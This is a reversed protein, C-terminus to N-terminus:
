DERVAAAKDTKKPTLRILLAPFLTLDATLCLAMIASTLLGLNRTITFESLGLVAFGIGIVLTTSVIAPLVLLLSNKLATAPSDGRRSLDSFRIAIHITDDVAVGLALCGIMVTGADLPLDLLGLLGFIMFLPILNPVMAAIAMAPWRFISFLIVSIVLLAVVLGRIQGYAIEDQARAFEYM